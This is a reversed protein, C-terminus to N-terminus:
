LFFSSFSLRRTELFVATNNQLKFSSIKIATSSGPATAASLNRQPLEYHAM